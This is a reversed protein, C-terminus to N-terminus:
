QFWRRLAGRYLGPSGGLWLEDPRGPPTRATYITAANGLSADVVLEFEGTGAWRWLNGNLGAGVLWAESGAVQTLSNLLVQSIQVPESDARLEYVGMGAAFLADGVAIVDNIPGSSLLKDWGTDASWRWVGDGTAALLCEGSLGLCAEGWSLFLANEAPAGPLLQWSAGEDVSTYIGTQNLSGAYLVGSPAVELSYVYALPLSASIRRWSTGADHSVWVGGLGQAAFITSEDQPHVRLATIFQRAQDAFPLGLFEWSTGGNSSRALSTGPPAGAGLGVYVTDDGAWAIRTVEVDAFPIPVPAWAIRPRFPGWELAMLSALVVLAALLAGGALLGLLRRRRGTTQGARLFAEEVRNLEGPWEAAHRCVEALRKGSYVYSPDRGSRQWEQASETLRRQAMLRARDQELWSQLLAWREILAEHALELTEVEASILGVDGRSLTGILRELSEPTVNPLDLEERYVRRRAYSVQEVMAVLRVFLLHALRQQEPELQEYIATARQDLAGSLGGIAEYAAHTLWIGHRQLWLQNLTFQLLPLAPQNAMDESLRGVLGQEFLAGVAKAPSVMAERLSEPSMPRLLVQALTPEEPVGPLNLWHGVFDARLAFLVRLRGRLEAAASKLLLVFQRQQRLRADPAGTIQTFLEEAQDIVLLLTRGQEGALLTGLATALADPRDSLRLELADAHAIREQPPLLTAVQDAIARLPRPGPVFLLPHWGAEIRPLLGAMLLSSKGSGSAGVVITMLNSRVTEILLLTDTERGFYCDAQERTFSFLGPYPAPTDPLRHVVEEPPQGLIGARLQLLAAADDLARFTVSSRRSLMPPLAQPDGGPLLVPIVRMDDRSRVAQDISVRLEENQWPSIGSPGIFIAVTDSSALATEISEQYPTGPVLSWAALWPAIGAEQLRRALEGVAPAEARHHSLFVDYRGSTM